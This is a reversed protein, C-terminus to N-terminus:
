RVLIMTGLPYESKAPPLAGEFTTAFRVEDFDWGNDAADDGARIAYANFSLDALAVAAYMHVGAGQSDGGPVCRNRFHISLM